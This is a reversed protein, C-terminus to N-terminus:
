LYGKENLAEMTVLYAEEAGLQVCPCQTDKLGIFNKCIDCAGEDPDNGASYEWAGPCCDCLEKNNIIDLLNKAHVEETYIENM